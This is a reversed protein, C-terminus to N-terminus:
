PQLLWIDCLTSLHFLFLDCVSNHYRKIFTLVFSGWGSYIFLATKYSALQTLHSLIYNNNQMNQRIFKVLMGLLIFVLCNFIVAILRGLFLSQVWLERLHQPTPPTCSSFIYTYSITQYSKTEWM